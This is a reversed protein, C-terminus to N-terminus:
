CWSTRVGGVALGPRAYPNEDALRDEVADSFMARLAPVTSPHANAWRRAETRTLSRLTRAEYELGFRRVRERNHESRLRGAKGRRFDDPWREAFSGITEDRGNAALEQAALVEREIKRAQRLSTPIGFGLGRIEPQTVYRKSATRPDYVEIIPRGNKLRVSV